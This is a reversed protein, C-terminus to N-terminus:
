QTANILIGYIANCFSFLFIMKFYKSVTKNNDILSPFDDILKGNKNEVMESTIFKIKEDVILYNEKKELLEKFTPSNMKNLLNEFRLINAQLLCKEEFVGMESGIEANKSESEFDSKKSKKLMNINNKNYIHCIFIQIKNKIEPTFDSWKMELINLNTLISLLFPFSISSKGESM